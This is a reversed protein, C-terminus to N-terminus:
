SQLEAGQTFYDEDLAPHHRLMRARTLHVLTGSAQYRPIGALRAFQRVTIRSHEDLYRLLIHEKEELRILLNKDSKHYRMLKCAERSAEISKDGVRVYIVSRFTTLDMVRHPKDPSEDVTVLIISRKRSVRVHTTKVAIPPRICLKLAELLAYEEEFVDKVGAATGDDEVGILLQGGQTNAFAAIEKAVREPAPVRQKFELHAGEGQAIWRSLHQLKV